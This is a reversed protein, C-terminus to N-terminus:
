ARVADAGAAPLPLSAGAARGADWADARLRKGRARGPGLAADAFRDLAAAHRDRAAMAPVLAPEACLGPDVARLRAAIADVAGVRFAEHWDRPRGPGATASLWEVRRVLGEWMVFVADRDAELGMVCLRQGGGRGDIWARCGNVEALAAGLASRWPRLRRAEDLPRNDGLTFAPAPAAAAEAEAALLAELRHRRILEQARAAALAAEHAEPSAALALLKRVRDLVDAM